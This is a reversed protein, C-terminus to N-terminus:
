SIRGQLAASGGELSALLHEAQEYTPNDDRSYLYKPRGPAAERVYTSSPYIAPAVGGTAAERFLVRM